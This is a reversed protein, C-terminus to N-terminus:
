CFLFIESLLTNTQHTFRAYVGYVHVKQTVHIRTPFSFSLFFSFFFSSCFRFNWTHNEQSHHSTILPTLLYNSTYHGIPTTTTFCGCGSATVRPEPMTVTLSIEPLRLLLQRIIVTCDGLTCQIAQLHTGGICTCYRHMVHHAHM